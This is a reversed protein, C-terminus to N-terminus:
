YNQNKKKGGLGKPDCFKYSWIGSIDPTKKKENRWIESWKKKSTWFTKNTVTAM